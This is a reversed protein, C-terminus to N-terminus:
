RHKPLPPTTQVRPLGRQRSRRVRSGSRGSPATARPAAWPPGAARRRPPLVLPALPTLRLRQPREQRPLRRAPQPTGRALSQLLSSSSTRSVPPPRKIRPVQVWFAASLDSLPGPVHQVCALCCALFPASGCAPQWSHTAGGVKVRRCWVEPLFQVWCAGQQAARLAERVIPDLRKRGSGRNRPKKQAPPAAEGGDAQSAAAKDGAAAAASGLEAEAASRKRGAAAAPEPAAGARAQQQQERDGDSIPAPATGADAEAMEVDRANAEKEEEHGEAEDESREDESDSAGSPSASASASASGGRQKSGGASGKRAAGGAKRGEGKGKPAWAGDGLYKWDQKFLFSGCTRHSLRCFPM